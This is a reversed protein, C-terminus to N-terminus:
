SQPDAHPPERNASVPTLPRRLLGAIQRLFTATLPYFGEAEILDACEHLARDIDVAQMEDMVAMVAGHDHPYGIVEVLQGMLSRSTTFQVFGADRTAPSM